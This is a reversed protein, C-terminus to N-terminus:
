SGKWTGEMQHAVRFSGRYIGVEGSLDIVQWDQGQSRVREIRDFRVSANGSTASSPRECSLSLSRLWINPCRDRDTRDMSYLLAQMLQGFAQLAETPLLLHAATSLGQYDTPVGSPYCRYRATVKREATNVLIDSLDLVRGRYGEGFLQRGGDGDAMTQDGPLRRYQGGGSHDLRLRCTNGGIDVEVTSYTGRMAHLSTRSELLRCRFSISGPALTRGIKIRVSSAFTRGLDDLGLRYLRNLAHGGLRLALAMYEISGLHPAEGCPREPGAYSVELMGSIERLGTTCSAIRMAFDRFGHAFYRQRGDGLLSDMTDFIQTEM